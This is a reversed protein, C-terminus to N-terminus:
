QENNDGIMENVTEMFELVIGDFDNRADGHIYSKRQEVCNCIDDVSHKRFAILTEKFKELAEEDSAFYDDHYNNVM